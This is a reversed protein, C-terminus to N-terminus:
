VNYFDTIHGSLERGAARVTGTYLYRFILTAADLIDRWSDAAQLAAAASGEGRPPPVPQSPFADAASLSSSDDM